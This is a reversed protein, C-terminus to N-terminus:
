YREKYNDELMAIEAAAAFLEAEAKRIREYLEDPIEVDGDKELKFDNWGEYAYCFRGLAM